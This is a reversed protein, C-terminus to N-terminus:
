SCLSYVTFVYEVEGDQHTDSTTKCEFYDPVAPLTTDCDFDGKVETIFLQNCNPHEFGLYFVQGGGINFITEAGLSEAKLLAVDFSDCLHVGEPLPYDEQRSIVINIRNKLPRHAEPISEWTKRGMIVANQRAPDETRQTVESFYKLDGPLDWPLTGNRGIGRREDCAVILAFTPLNSM